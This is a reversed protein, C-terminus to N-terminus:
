EGHMTDLGKKLDDLDAILDNLEQLHKKQRTARSWIACGFLYMTTVGIATYRFTPTGEKAIELIYMVMALWLLIIYIVLYKTIVDKQWRLKKIQQQIFTQSSSDLNIRKFSYSRWTIILYVIMLIYVSAISIKFAPGYQDEFSFYVWGIGLMTGLFAASMCINMKFVKKQNRQWKDKQANLVTHDPDAIVPQKHWSKQINEFDM